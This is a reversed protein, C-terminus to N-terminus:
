VMKDYFFLFIAVKREASIYFVKVVSKQVFLLNM